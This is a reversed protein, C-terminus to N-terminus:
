YRSIRMATLGSPHHHSATGEVLQGLRRKHLELLNLRLTTDSEQSGMSQLGGAEETWPIECALISFHTAM